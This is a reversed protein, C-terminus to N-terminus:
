EKRLVEIAEIKLMKLIPLVSILMSTILVMILSVIINNIYIELNYGLLSEFFFSLTFQIVLAVVCSIICFGTMEAVLLKSIDKNTHGVAKRVGIEKRRNEIWFVVINISYVLSVIYGWIAVTFIIDETNVLGAVVDESEIEGLYAISSEGLIEIANKLVAEEDLTFDGNENYMIFSIYNKDVGSSDTAEPLATCPMFIRADWLSVEGKIGVVGIVEYKVKEIDIYEKGDQNYVNEKYNKGILVVKQGDEIEKATYYRGESLPYHWEDDKVFWEGSVPSFTNIEREDVHVMIGNVIIGTDERLGIFLDNYKDFNKGQEWSLIYQRGNPPQANEKEEKALAYQSVFSVVISILLMSLTLGLMLFVSTLPTDKIRKRVMESIYVLM